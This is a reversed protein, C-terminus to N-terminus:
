FGRGTLRRRQSDIYNNASVSTVPTKIATGLFAGNQFRSVVVHEFDPYSGILATMFDAHSDLLDSVYSNPVFNGDTADTVTSPIGPIYNRGRYSRGRKATRNTMVLCASGPIPDTDAVAGPLVTAPVFLYSPASSTEQSTARCGTFNLKSSLNPGFSAKWIDFFDSAVTALFAPTLDTATTFHYITEVVQGFLAFFMEFKITDSAPVFPHSAM